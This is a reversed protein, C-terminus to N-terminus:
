KPYVFIVGRSASGESAKSNYEHKYGDRGYILELSDKIWEYNLPQGKYSDYGLEPHNPVVFDHIVIVPKIGAEAIQRLEDLLPCADMWHADALLLINRNPLIYDKMVKASDGHVCHVNDVGALYKSAAVMYEINSEITIVQDVWGSMVKTTGGMYTGTEIILNIKHKKVLSKIKDRLITDGEFGLLNRELYEQEATGM